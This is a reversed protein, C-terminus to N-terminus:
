LFDAVFFAIMSLTMPNTPLGFNLKARFVDSSVLEMLEETFM